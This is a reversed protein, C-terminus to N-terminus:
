VAIAISRSFVRHHARLRRQDRFFIDCKKCLVERAEVTEFRGLGLLAQGAVAGLRRLDVVADGGDIGFVGAGELIGTMQDDFATTRSKNIRPGVVANRKQNIREM